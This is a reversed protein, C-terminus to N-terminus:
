AAGGGRPKRRGGAIRKAPPKTEERPGGAIIEGPPRMPIKPTNGNQHSRTMPAQCEDGFALWGVDVSFVRAVAVWIARTKPEQEGELWRRVVSPDFPKERGSAEAVAEGIEQLTLSRGLEGEKHHRARFMRAALAADAGMKSQPLFIKSDAISTECPVDYYSERLCNM